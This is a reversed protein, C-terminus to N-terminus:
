PFVPLFQLGVTEEFGFRVNMNQVAQGSAGKVLNDIASIIIARGAVRDAFVAIHCQNTGAVDRTNPANEVVKVFTSNAYAKQLTNKIGAADGKVYISSLMGRSLPVVQPTFTVQIEEGAAESLAQEIEPIHRHSAISYPRVSESVETFLNPVKASRGAGSIGSKADIIIDTKEIIKERLLPYLPLIASTPYCGPNAILNAKKITERALETMGYVATKQLDPAAHAHGYWKAYEDVNKLRFDASLDIVVVHKPLKAIVEQSTAHPLCGFAVDVDKFDVQDLKMLDPLGANALHSYIAGIPQGANSDAVLATIKVNQHALLLRILEVGTYGSAGIIVANIM